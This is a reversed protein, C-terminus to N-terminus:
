IHNIGHVLTVLTIQKISKGAEFKLVDTMSECTTLLGKMCLSVVRFQYYLKKAFGWNNTPIQFTSVHASCESSNLQRFM